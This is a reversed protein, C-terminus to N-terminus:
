KRLEPHNAYFEDESLDWDNTVFVVGAASSEATLSVDNTGSIAGIRNLTERNVGPLQIETVRLSGGNHQWDSGTWSFSVAAENLYTAPTSYGPIAPHWATVGRIRIRYTAEGLFPLAADTKRLNRSQLEATVQLPTGTRGIREGSIHEAYAEAFREFQYATPDGSCGAPLCVAIAVIMAQASKM